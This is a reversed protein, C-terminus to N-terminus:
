NPLYAPISPVVDLGQLAVSISVPVDFTRWFLLTTGAADTLYWGYIVNPVLLPDAAVFQKLDGTLTPIGTPSIFPATFLVTSSVAYGDFDAQTFASVDMDPTFAVPTKFLHLKGGVFLNTAAIFETLEAMLTSNPVNVPNM